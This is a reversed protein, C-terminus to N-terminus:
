QLLLMAEPLGAALAGAVARDAEALDAFPGLRVRYQQQRGDGFTEVRAGLGALRAAQRQALDRRFFTGTEAVLRGPTATRQVVTEPLRDPPPAEATAAAQAAVPKRRASQRM